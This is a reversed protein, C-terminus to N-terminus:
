QPFWFNWLCKSKTPIYYNGNTNPGSCQYEDGLLFTFSIFFCPTGVMLKGIHWGVRSQHTVFVVIDDSYSRCFTANLWKAFDFPPAVILSYVHILKMAVLGIILKHSPHASKVLINTFISNGYPWLYPVPLHHKGYVHTSIIGILQVSTSQKVLLDLWLHERNRIKWLICVLRNSPFAEEDRGFRIPDWVGM